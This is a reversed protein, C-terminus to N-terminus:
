TNIHLNSLFYCKDQNDKMGNEHLWKVSAKQLKKELDCQNKGENYLTSDDAYSAIDITDVLFIMDYFHILYFSVWFQIKLYGM